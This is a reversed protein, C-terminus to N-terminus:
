HRTSRPLRCGSGRGVDPQQRVAGHLDVSRPGANVVDATPADDATSAACGSSGADADVIQASGFGATTALARIADERLVTGLGASPQEAVAAQLCHSISWGYMLREIANGAATLGAAV